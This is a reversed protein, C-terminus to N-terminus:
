PTKRQKTSYKMIDRLVVFLSITDPWFHRRLLRIRLKGSPSTGTNEKLFKAEAKAFDAESNTIIAKISEVYALHGDQRTLQFMDAIEQLKAIMTSLELRDGAILEAEVSRVYFYEWDLVPYRGLTYDYRKAISRFVKHILNNAFRNNFPLLLYGWNHLLDVQYYAALAEQLDAAKESWTNTEPSAKVKLVIRRLLQRVKYAKLLDIPWRPNLYPRKAASIYEYYLTRLDNLYVLDSAISHPRPEQVLRRHINVARRINREHIHSFWSEMRIWYNHLVDDETLSPITKLRPFLNIYLEKNTGDLLRITAVASRAPKALLFSADPIRQPEERWIHLANRDGLISSLLTRVDGYLLFSSNNPRSELWNFIRKCPRKSPTAFPQTPEVYECWYVQSWPAATLLPSIDWDDDSYGAVILVPGQMAIKNIIRATEKQPRDGMLKLTAALCHPTYQFDGFQFTGHPKTVKVRTALEPIIVDTALPLNWSFTVSHKRLAQEFLVDFNLTIINSIFGKAALEAIAQHNYNENADQLVSLYNIAAQNGHIDVIADLLRELRYGKIINKIANRESISGIGTIALSEIMTDVLQDVLVVTTPFGSPQSIGAGAFFTGGQKQLATSLELVCGDFAPEGSIMNIATPYPM